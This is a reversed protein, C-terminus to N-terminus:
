IGKCKERQKRGDYEEQSRQAIGELEQMQERTLVNYTKRNMHKPMKKLSINTDRRFHAAMNSAVRRDITIPVNSLEFRRCFEDLTDSQNWLYIFSKLQDFTMDPERRRGKYGIKAQECRCKKCIPCKSDYRGRDRHFEKLEKWKRCTTCHKMDKSKLMCYVVVPTEVRDAANKIRAAKINETVVKNYIM